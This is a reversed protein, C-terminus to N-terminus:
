ENSKATWHLCLMVTLLGLGPAVASLPSEKFNFRSEALLAGWEAFDSREGLGLFSLTSATLLSYALAMPLIARLTTYLNLLVCQRVIHWRSAGLATSALRYDSRLIQQTEVAIVSALTPIQGIGAAIILTSLSRPMPAAILLALVLPPLAMWGHIIGRGLVYPSGTQLGVLIGVAVGGGLAISGAGGLLILTHRAGYVWRSWLDRGIYDTGLWHSLSPPLLLRNIDARYPDDIALMPALIGVLVFVVILVFAGRTM